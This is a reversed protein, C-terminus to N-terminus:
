IDVSRRRMWNDVAERKGLKQIGQPNFVSVTLQTRQPLKPPLSRRGEQARQAPRTSSNEPRRLRRCAARRLSRQKQRRAISTPKRLGRNTNRLRHSTGFVELQPEIPRRQTSIVRPQGARGSVACRHRLLLTRSYQLVTQDSAAPSRCARRSCGAGDQAGAVAWPRSSPHTPGSSAGGRGPAGQGRRAVQPFATNFSDRICM